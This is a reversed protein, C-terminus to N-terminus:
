DRLSKDGDRLMEAIHPDCLVVRERHSPDAYVDITSGEAFRPLDAYEVKEELEVDYPGDPAEVRLSMLLLPKLNVMGQQSSWLVRARMVKASKVFARKEEARQEREAVERARDAEQLAQRRAEAQNGRWWQVAAIAVGIGVLTWFVVSQENM